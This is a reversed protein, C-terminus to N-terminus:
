ENRRFISSEYIMMMVPIEQTSELMIRTLV